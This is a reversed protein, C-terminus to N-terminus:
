LPKNNPLLFLVCAEEVTIQNRFYYFIRGSGKSNISGVAPINWRCAAQPYTSSFVLKQIEMDYYFIRFECVKGMFVIIYFCCQCIRHWLMTDVVSVVSKQTEYETLLLIIRWTEQKIVFIYGFFVAVMEEDLRVSFDGRCRNSKCGTRRLRTGFGYFRGYFVDELYFFDITGAM